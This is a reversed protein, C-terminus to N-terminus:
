PRAIAKSRCKVRIRWAPPDDAQQATTMKWGFQLAGLADPPDPREAPEQRRGFRTDGDVDRGLDRPRGFQGRVALARQDHELSVPRSSTASVPTIVVAIDRGVQRAEGGLRREVITRHDDAVVSRQASTAAAPSVDTWRAIRCADDRQV